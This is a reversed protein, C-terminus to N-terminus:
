NAGFQTRSITEFQFQAERLSRLRDRVDTSTGIIRSDQIAIYLTMAVERVENPSTLAVAARASKAGHILDLLKGRARDISVTLEPEPTSENELWVIQLLESRVDDAIGLLRSASVLRQELFRIQLERAARRDDQLTNLFFGLFAGIVLFGGAIVPVGWWPAADVRDLLHTLDTLPTPTPTPANLHM